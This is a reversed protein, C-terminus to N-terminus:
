GRPDLPINKVEIRKGVYPKLRLKAINKPDVTIFVTRDGLQRDQYGPIAPRNFMGKERLKPNERLQDPNPPTTDGIAGNAAAFRIENGSADLLELDFGTESAGEGSLSFGLKWASSVNSTTPASKAASEVSSLTVTAGGLKATSGATAPIEAVGELFEVDLAFLSTSRQSRGAVVGLVEYLTFLKDPNQRDYPQESDMRFTPRRDLSTGAQIMNVFRGAGRGKIMTVIFRKKFEKPMEETISPSVSRSKAMAANVAQTLDISLEGTYDWCKADPGSLDCVGRVTLTRFPKADPTNPKTTAGPTGPGRGPIPPIKTGDPLTPQNNSAVPTQGPAGSSQAGAGPQAPDAGTTAGGAETGKAAPMPASKTNSCGGALVSVLALWLAPRIRAM